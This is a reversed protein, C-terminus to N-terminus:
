RVPLTMSAVDSYPSYNGATDYTRARYEYTRGDAPLADCVTATAYLPRPDYGQRLIVSWAGTGAERREVAFGNFDRLSGPTYDTATAQIGTACSRLTVEPAYAPAIGDPVDLWLENDARGDLGHRSHTTTGGDNTVLVRYHRTEGDPTIPATTWTSGKTTGLPVWVYSGNVKDNSLVTYHDFHPEKNLPWKLTVKNTKRDFSGTLSSVVPLPRVIADASGKSINGAKDAARVEYYYPTRDDPNVLPDTYSRATTTAVKTWGGSSVPKRYLTYNRLDMEKNASWSVTTKRNKVNYATKVGVPALPKRKDYKASTRPKYTYKVKAAGSWNVYDVRLTHKGSPITVNVSKKRATNGTNKWLDIRRVGDLYVRVGDTAAVSFTFPGGSGFDRTVSWRVGFKDKPVGAVPRGSWSQSIASDCDTKVPKGKFSTNKYFARKYVNASCGPAAAHAEPVPVLLSGLVVASIVGVGGVRTAVLSKPHM